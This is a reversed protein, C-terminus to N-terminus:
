SGKAFDSKREKLVRRLIARLEKLRSGYTNQLAISQRLQSIKEQQEPYKIIEDLHEAWEQAGRRIAVIGPDPLELQQYDTALIPLGSIAFEYFKLPLGMHQAVANGAYPLVLADAGAIFGPVEEWAKPGLVHCNSLADLELVRDGGKVFPGIFVFNWHPRRSATERILDCDIRTGLAGSFLARPRPIAQYEQPQRGCNERWWQEDVAHPLHYTHPNFSKLNQLVSGSTTVVADAKRCCIEEEKLEEPRAYGFGYIDSSYYIKLARPFLDFYDHRVPQQFLVVMDPRWGLQGLYYRIRPADIQRHLSRLVNYGGGKMMKPFAPPMTGVTLRPEIRRLRPFLSTQLSAAGRVLQNPFPTQELWLVENGERAWLAPMRHRIRQFGDWYDDTIALIRQNKLLRAPAM